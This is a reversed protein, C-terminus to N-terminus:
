DKKKQINEELKILFDDIMNLNDSLLHKIVSTSHSKGTGYSGQLWISLRNKQENGELSDLTKSLADYFNPTPIFRKWMNEIENTIDFVPHFSSDLSLFESYKM